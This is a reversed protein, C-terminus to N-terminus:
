YSILLQHHREPMDWKRVPCATPLRELLQILLKDM